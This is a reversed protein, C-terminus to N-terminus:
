RKMKDRRRPTARVLKSIIYLMVFIECILGGLTISIDVKRGDFDDLRRCVCPGYVLLQEEDVVDHIVNAVGIGLFCGCDSFFRWAELM